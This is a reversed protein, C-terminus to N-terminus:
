FLSTYFIKQLFLKKPIWLPETSCNLINNVLAGLESGGSPYIKTYKLDTKIVFYVPHNRWLRTPPVLERGACENM